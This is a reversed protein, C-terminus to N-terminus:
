LKGEREMRAIMDATSEPSRHQGMKLELRDFHKRLAASSLINDQWFSDHQCWHVVAEVRQRDCGDLRILRDIDRAWRNLNPRRFDAKRQRILDLLLTALQDANASPPRRVVEKM